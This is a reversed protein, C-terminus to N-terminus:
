ECTGLISGTGSAQYSMMRLGSWAARVVGGGLPDSLYYDQLSRQYVVANFYDM